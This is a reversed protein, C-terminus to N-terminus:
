CGLRGPQRPAAAAVREIVREAARGDDLHCFRERFRAYREAYRVEQAPLERVADILEETTEVLPGPALPELDFYFGRQRDKYDALDYALFLMPKGTVAFDFMTSSYDTVMADAALYLEAVEPHFSVDRVAPHDVAALRGTLMYHLRLLLVHDDGLAAAFADVDLGLAFQKGGEPFVVDDRWTPTYLVATTGASIGLEARVRARVEEAGPGVLVDNRPYGSELVEGDYRFAQRLFGTSARNPSLLCDWQDVDRQLRELRGPPAWLVDWHIRKLPTGHWTQVYLTSPRKSWVLDTHTNAVLVDAEDLAEMCQPSGYPVTEVGEPFGTLHAADALWVHQHADDRAVLAEYIARPNDSYRGEFSNYVFRL